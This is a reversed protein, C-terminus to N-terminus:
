SSGEQPTTAPPTTLDQPAAGEELAEPVVPADPASAAEEDRTALSRAVTAYARRADSEHGVLRFADGRLLDFAPGPTGGVASLIAPAIWIKWNRLPADGPREGGAPNGASPNLMMIVFVFLVMIAGAYIIVELAAAFPAGLTFFVLAVSVLSVVLYLLAHAANRRTIAVATALVAVAGSIYFVVNM